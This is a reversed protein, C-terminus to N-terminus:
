SCPNKIQERGSSVSVIFSVNAPLYYKRARCENYRSVNIIHHLLIKRIKLIVTKGLIIRRMPLKTMCLFQNDIQSCRLQLTSSPTSVWDITELVAAINRTKRNSLQGDHEMRMDAERVDTSRWGCSEVALIATEDVLTTLADRRIMGGTSSEGLRHM